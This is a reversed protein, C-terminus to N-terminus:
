KLSLSSVLSHGTFDREIDIENNLLKVVEDLAKKYLEDFSASETKNENLEFTISHDENLVSSHEKKNNLMMGSIFKPLHFLSEVKTVFNYKTTSNPSLLKTLKSIGRISELIEKKSVKWGYVESFLQQYMTALAEAELGTVKIYKFVNYDNISSDHKQLIYADIEAESHIHLIGESCNYNDHNIAANKNILPHTNSDLAYHCIFGAYYSYLMTQNSCYDKMFEVTEKVNHNHMYDGYKKLSNPLAVYHSFFFLDPGESGLYFLPLNTIKEKLNEDFLNYADKAFEFHTTAAPM